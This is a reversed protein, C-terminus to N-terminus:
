HVHSAHHPSQRVLKQGVFVIIAKKCAINLGNRNSNLGRFEERLIRNYTEYIDLVCVILNM